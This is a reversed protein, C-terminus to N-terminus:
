QERRHARHQEKDQPVVLTEQEIRGIRVPLM